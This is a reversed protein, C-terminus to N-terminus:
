MTCLYKLVYVSKSFSFQLKVVGVVLIPLCVNVYILLPWVRDRRSTFFTCLRFKSYKNLLFHLKTSYSNHCLNFHLIKHSFKMFIRIRFQFGFYLLTYTYRLYLPQSIWFSVVFEVDPMGPM